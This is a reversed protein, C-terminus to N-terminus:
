LEVIIIETKNTGHMSSCTPRVPTGLNTAAMVTPLTM